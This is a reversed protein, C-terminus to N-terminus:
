KIFCPDFICFVCTLSSVYASFTESAKQCRCLVIGILQVRVPCLSYFCSSLVHYNSTVLSLNGSKKQFAHKHPRFYMKIPSFGISTAPSVSLSEHTKQICVLPPQATNARAPVQHDPTWWCKPTCSKCMQACPKHLIQERFRLPLISHMCARTDTPM